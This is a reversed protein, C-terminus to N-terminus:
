KSKQNRISNIILGAVFGIFAGLWGGAIYGIIILIFILFITGTIKKFSDVKNFTRNLDNLECIYKYQASDLIYKIKENLFKINFEESFSHKKNKDQQKNNILSLDLACQMVNLQLGKLLNLGAEGRKKFGTLLKELDDLTVSKDLIAEVIGDNGKNNSLSLIKERVKQFEEAEINLLDLEGQLLKIEQESEQVQTKFIDRLIISANWFSESTEDAIKQIKRDMEDDGLFNIKIIESTEQKNEKDTAM